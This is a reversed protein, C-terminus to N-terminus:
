KLAKELIDALRWGAKHLNERTVAAAWEHYSIADPVAKEEAVGIALTRGKEDQQPRVRRFDLRAHAEIPLPLIEDSM